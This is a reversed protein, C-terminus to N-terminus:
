GDSLRKLLKQARSRFGASADPLHVELVLRLERQLEPYSASLESAIQMAHVRIALPQQSNQVMTLCLAYWEGQQDDPLPQGVLSRLTNRFVAPHYHQNRQFAKLLRGYHPRLLGPDEDALKSWAWAAGQSLMQNQGLVLDLSATLQTPNSKVWGAVRQAQAQSHEAMLATALDMVDLHFPSSPVERTLLSERLGYTVIARGRRTRERKAAM